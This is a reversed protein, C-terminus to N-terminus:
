IASTPGGRRRSLAQSASSVREQVVGALSAAAAVHAMATQSVKREGGVAGDATGM